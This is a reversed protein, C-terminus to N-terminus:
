IGGFLGGPCAGCPRRLWYVEYEALSVVQVPTWMTEWSILRLIEDFVGGSCTDM